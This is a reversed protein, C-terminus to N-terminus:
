TSRWACQSTKFSAIHILDIGGIFLFAIGLFKLYNNEQFRRSNWAVLALSLIALMSVVCVVIGKINIRKQHNYRNKV